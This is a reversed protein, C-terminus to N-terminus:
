SENLVRGGHTHTHTVIVNNEGEVPEWGAGEEMYICM